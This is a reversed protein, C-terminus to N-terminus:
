IYIVWRGGGFVDIRALTKGEIAVAGSNNGEGDRDNAHVSSHSLLDRSGMTRAIRCQSLCILNKPLAERSQEIIKMM